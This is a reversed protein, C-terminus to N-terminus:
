KKVVPVLAINGEEDTHIFTRKIRMRENELWEIYSIRGYETNLLMTPPNYNTVANAIRGIDKNKSTRM